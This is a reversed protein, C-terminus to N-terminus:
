NPWARDCKDARWDGFPTDNVCDYAKYKRGAKNTKNAVIRPGHACTGADPNGKTYLNGYKDEKTEIGGSASSVVTTGIGAGSLAQIAAQTDDKVADQKPGTPHSLIDRLYMLETVRVEMEALTDARGTLLDNNSGVKVTLSFPSETTASM